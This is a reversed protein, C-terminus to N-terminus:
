GGGHATDSPAEPADALPSRLISRRRPTSALVAAGVVEAGGAELARRAELLTAGTTVVDDVVLVRRGSVAATAVFSGAANGARERLGLRKQAVGAGVRRLGRHLRVGARAGVLRVPDYGRRRRGARSSPVVCLLVSQPADSAGLAANVASALAPALAGAVDTRGCEKLALIVRRPVEEYDGAAWVRLPPEGVSRLVPAGRLASRCRACVGRDTRGCGACEVPLLVALADLAAARLVRAFDIQMGGMSALPLVARLARPSDTSFPHAHPGPSSPIRSAVPRTSM